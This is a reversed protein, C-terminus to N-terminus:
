RFSEKTHQTWQRVTMGWRDIVEARYAETDRLHFEYAAPQHHDFYYPTIRM